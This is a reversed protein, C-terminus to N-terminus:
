MNTIKLGKSLSGSTLFPVFGTTKFEVQFLVSSSSSSASFKVKVLGLCPKFRNSGFVVLESTFLVGPRINVSKAVTKVWTNFLM